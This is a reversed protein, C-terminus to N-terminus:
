AYTVRWVPRSEDQVFRALRARRYAKETADDDQDCLYSSDDGFLEFYGDKSIGPHAAFHDCDISEFNFAYPWYGDAQYAHDSIYQDIDAMTDGEPIRGVVLLPNGCRVCEKDPMWGQAVFCHAKISEENTKGNKIEVYLDGKLRGRVGHLLFTPTFWRNNGLYVTEPKYEWEVGCADFFVAWRAELKSHFLYGKYEVKMRKLANGSEM